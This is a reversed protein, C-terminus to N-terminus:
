TLTLNGLQHGGQMLTQLEDGILPTTSAIGFGVKTAWYAKQDWPLLYGTLALGLTCVLLLGGFMWTLERPKKYAGWVFVQILHVLLLIVMASSGWHHVARIFAGLPVEEQIFQVSSWASDASPAYNVALLVGTVVQVVFSFLLLSGFAAAYRSGGPLPELLLVQKLLKWRARSDLFGSSPPKEEAMNIIGM